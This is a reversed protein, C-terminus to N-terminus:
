QKARPKQGGANLEALRRKLAPTDPEAALGKELWERAKAPDGTNRYHDSLAAYPPWYGPKLEIARNLEPIALAENGLRLLNEGKKTLIEPLLAFEPSVRAIVYDFEHISSTLSRERERKTQDRYLARYTNELGWCYHHMHVFNRRGLRTRWRETEAADAGGPARASYIQTHKCYPPLMGLLSPDFRWQANADSATFFAACVAGVAFIPRKIIQSRLRITTM